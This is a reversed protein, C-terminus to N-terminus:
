IENYLVGKEEGSERERGGRWRGGREERKFLSKQRVRM